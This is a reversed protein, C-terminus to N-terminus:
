TSARIIITPYEIRVKLLNGAKRVQELTLNRDGVWNPHSESQVRFQSIAECPATLIMHNLCILQGETVQKGSVWSQTDVRSVHFGFTQPQLNAARLLECWEDETPIHCSGELRSDRGGLEQKLSHQRNLWDKVESIPAVMDAVVLVGGPRLIRAIADIVGPQERETLDKIAYRSVVVDVSENALPIHRADGQIRMTDIPPIKRLQNAVRDLFLYEHHFLKDKIALGVKGPGSMLDMVRAAGKFNELGTARLIKQLFEEDSYVSPGTDFIRRDYAAFLGEQKEEIGM